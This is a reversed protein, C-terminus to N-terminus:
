EAPGGTIGHAAETIQNRYADCSAQFGKEDGMQGFSYGAQLGRLYARDCLEDATPQRQQPATCIRNM